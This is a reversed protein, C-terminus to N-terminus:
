KYVYLIYLNGILIQIARSIFHGEHLQQLQKKIKEDTDRVEFLYHSIACQSSHSQKVHFHAASFFM